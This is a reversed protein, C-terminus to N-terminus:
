NRQSLRAVCAALTDRARARNAPTFNVAAQLGLGDAIGSLIDAERAADTGPALAEILPVLSKRWLQHSRDNEAALEPNSAAASWFAIWVKWERLRKADLPLTEELHLLLKEAPPLTSKAAEAMREGAADYVARLAALVLEERNEFYHTIRGTTCGAAAAVKRMTLAELGEDAIVQWSAEVLERRRLDHDILKPM